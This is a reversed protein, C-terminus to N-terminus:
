MNKDAYYEGLLYHNSLFIIAYLYHKSLNFNNAIDIKLYELATFSKM